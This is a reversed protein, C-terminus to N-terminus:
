RAYLLIFHLFPLIFVVDFFVEGPLVRPLGRPAASSEEDRPRKGGAMPRLDVIITFATLM